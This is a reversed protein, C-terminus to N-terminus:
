AGEMDDLPDPVISAETTARIDIVQEEIYSSCITALAVPEVPSKEMDKSLAAFGALVRCVDAKLCDKCSRPPTVPSEEGTEFMPAQEM